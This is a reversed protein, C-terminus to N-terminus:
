KKPAMVKKQAFPPGLTGDRQCMTWEELFGVVRNGWHRGGTSSASVYGRGIRRSGGGTNKLFRHGRSRSNGEGGANFSGGGDQPPRDFTNEPVGYESDRQSREIRQQRGPVARCRLLNLTVDNRSMLARCREKAGQGGGFNQSETNLGSKSSGAACSAKM